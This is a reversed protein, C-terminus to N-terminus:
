KGREGWSQISTSNKILYLLQMVPFFNELGLGSGWDWFGFGTSQTQALLISLDVRNLVSVLIM